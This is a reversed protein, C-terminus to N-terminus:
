VEVERSFVADYFPQWEPYRENLLAAAQALWLRAPEAAAASSIEGTRKDFPQFGLETIYAGARERALLYLRAAEAQRTGRLRKDVIAAQLQPIVDILESRAPMGPVQRGYGPYEDRLKEKVQALWEKESKTPNASVRKEAQAYIYRGISYNALQIRQEPTLPKRDGRALQRQYAGQDFSESDGVPAFLGWVLNYDKVVGRNGREWEAAETSVPLFPVLSTTMGQSSRLMDIGYRAVFEDVGDDRTGGNAVAEDQLRRLDEVVERRMLLEDGEETELLTEPYPATPSFFQAASRLAYLKKAYERSDEILRAIEDPRSLDYDGTSELYDSVQSVTNAFLRPDGGEVAQRLNRLYGPLMSEVFGQSYDTEGYPFMFDRVFDWDPTDPVLAAAPVQVVPGVGPLVETMLSLGAVRGTMDVPMGIALNSLQRSFPYAFVEEGNIDKYFFGRGDADPDLGRAGNMVQQGRRFVKPNEVSIKAWRTIVEKWAEGFPFVVRFMDFFQGRNTLDYLLDKTEDLAWSKAVMDFDDLTRSATEASISAQVPARQMRKLQAGPLKAKQANAIAAARVDDTMWPVMEEIRQWYRQKFTQSRSLYNTPKTALYSFAWSTANDFFGVRDLLVDARRGKVAAPLNTMNDVHATIADSNSWRMQADFKGILEGGIRGTAIAELLVPDSRTRYQIGEWLYDVYRDSGERTSLIPHTYSMDTRKGRLPGSWLAEKVDDLNGDAQAIARAITDNHLEGIGDALAKRFGEDAPTYITWEDSQLRKQDVWGGFQATNQADQFEKVPNGLDDVFGEGRVDTARRGAQTFMKAFRSDDAVLGAIFSLPHAFISDMGAAAMRLQEEGIVRATYAGRLLTMRKWVSQGQDLASVARTFFPTDVWKKLTSTARRMARADPLPVLSNLYESYLLPSEAPFLDDGVKTGLAKANEAIERTLYTAVYDFDRNYLKTLERARGKGGKVTGALEDAVDGMVDGLISVITPRKSRAVREVASRQLEPSVKANQLWREVQAVTGDLDAPDLNIGPMDKFLRVGPKAAKRVKFGLFEPAERLSIGLEPRLIDMVAQETHADALAVKLRMPVKDGLAKHLDYLSSTEAIRQVVRRGGKTLWGDVVDPLVTNRVGRVRGVVADIARGQASRDIVKAFTPKTALETAAAVLSREDRLVRSARGARSGVELTKAVAGVATTPDGYWAIGADVLGSLINFQAEGPEAVQAAFFRGPTIAPNGPGGLTVDGVQIQLRGAKRRVEEEIAGSPLFGSGLSIDRGDLTDDIVERLSSTGSKAWAENFSMAGSGRPGRPLQTATYIGARAFNQVEQLPSELVVFATRSAGKLAPLINEDVGGLATDLGRAAAGGVDSIAEGLPHLVDGVRDFFGKSRENDFSAQMAEQVAPDTPDQGSMAMSFLVKPNADPYAQVYAAMLAQFSGDAPLEVQERYAAAAQRKRIRGVASEDSDFYASM